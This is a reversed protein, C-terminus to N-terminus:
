LNSVRGYIATLAIAKQEMDKSEHTDSHDNSSDKTAKSPSEFPSDKSTNTNKHTLHTRNKFCKAFFLAAVGFISWLLIFALGWRSSKGGTKESVYGYLFPSPLYGFLNYCLHSISNAIEKTKDPTASLMIGTLGPVISAGFFLLLWMLFIFLPVSNIVPLFVGSAAALVSIKFCAELATKNTYGGLHQILYGGAIVGFTPATICVVSFMVYVKHDPVHLVVEM